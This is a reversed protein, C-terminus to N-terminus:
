SLEFFLKIKAGIQIGFVSWIIFFVDESMDRKPGDNQSPTKKSNSRNQGWKPIGRPWWFAALFAFFRYFVDEPHLKAELAWKSM